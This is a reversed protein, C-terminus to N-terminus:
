RIAAHPVRRERQVIFWAIFGALAAAPAAVECTFIMFKWESFFIGRTRTGPIDIGFPGLILALVVLTTLMATGTMLAQGIAPMFRYLSLAFTAASAVLGVVIAMILYSGLTVGVGYTFNSFYISWPYAWFELGTALLLCLSGTLLVRTSRM